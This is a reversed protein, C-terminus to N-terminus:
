HTNQRGSEDLLGVAPIIKLENMKKKKSREVHLSQHENHKNELTESHSFIFSFPQIKRLSSRGYICFHVKNLHANSFLSAFRNQNEVRTVTYELYMEM